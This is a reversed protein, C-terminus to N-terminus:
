FGAGPQALYEREEDTNARGLVANRHPFRGFRHIVDRHREAYDLNGDLLAQVPEPVDKHQADSQLASFRAVSEDQAAQEESHELPLLAFPRALWCLEREWGRALGEAALARAAADGAFSRADGRLTNRTFQDLVVILALWGLPESAWENLQGALAADITAGFRQRIQEDFVDSKTFWQSKLALAAEDTPPSAGFWFTLVDQPTAVSATLTTPPLDSTTM